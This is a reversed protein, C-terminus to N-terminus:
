KNLEREIFAPMATFAGQQWRPSWIECKDSIYKAREAIPNKYRPEDISAFTWSWGGSPYMPVWGYLPDAYDFLNYFSFNVLGKEEAIRM